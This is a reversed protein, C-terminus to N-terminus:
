LRCGRRRGPIRLERLVLFVRGGIDVAPALEDLLHDVLHEAEALEPELLDLRRLVQGPPERLFAQADFAPNAPNRRRPPAAPAGAGPAGHRPREASSATSRISMPQFKLRACSHIWGRDCETM